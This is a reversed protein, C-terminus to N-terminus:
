TTILADSAENGLENKKALAKSSLPLTFSITLGPNADTLRLQTSHLKCVAAVMSLGLGNGAQNRSSDLRYFRQLVKNRLKEPIGPGSDSISVTVM